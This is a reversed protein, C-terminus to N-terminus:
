NAYKNPNKIFTKINTFSNESGNYNPQTIVIVGITKPIDKNWKMIYPIYISDNIFEIKKMTSFFDIYNSLIKLTQSKVMNNYSNSTENSLRFSYVYKKYYASM